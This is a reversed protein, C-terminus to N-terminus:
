LLTLIDKPNIKYEESVKIINKYKLLDNVIHKKYMDINNSNYSLPCKGMEREVEEIEAESIGFLKYIHIDIQSKMEEIQIQKEFIDKLNLNRCNQIQTYKSIIGDALNSLKNQINIDPIIIPSYQIHFIKLQPFIKNTERVLTRYLFSYFKSNLLTLIYKLDVLERYESRLILSYLTNLLYYNKDDYACIFKDATQRILIKESFIFEKRMFTAYEGKERDILDKNDRIYLGSWKYHYAFINKGELIKRTYQEDLNYTLLKNRINGTAIGAIVECVDNVKKYGPKFIRERLMFIVKSSDIDFINNLLNKYYYQPIRKYNEVYLDKKKNKSNSINKCNIKNSNDKDNNKDVTIISMNMDVDTFIKEGLNIIEYISTTNLILRRTVTFNNNYLITAPLIFSLRGRDQLLNISKEIFLSYIDFRGKATSYKKKLYKKNYYKNIGRNELYPPNGIIYDFKMNDIPTERLYDNIYLNFNLKVEKRKLKSLSKMILITKSLEIARKDIDIGYLINEVIIRIIEDDALLTNNKFWDYLVDFTHILFIGCGCAPELIKINFINDKKSINYGIYKDIMYKVIWEPTYYISHKDWNDKKRTLYEYIKPIFTDMKLFNQPVNNKLIKKIKIYDKKDIEKATCLPLLDKSYKNSEWILEILLFIIIDNLTEDDYKDIYLRFLKDIVQTCFDM